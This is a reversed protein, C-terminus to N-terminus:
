FVSILTELLDAAYTTANSFFFLEELSQKNKKKLFSYVVVISELIVDGIRSTKTNAVYLLTTPPSGLGM